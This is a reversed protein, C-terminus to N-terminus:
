KKKTEAKKQTNTAFVIEVGLKQGLRVLLEDQAEPAFTRVVNEIVSVAQNVLSDFEGFSKAAKVREAWDDRTLERVAQAVRLADRVMRQTEVPSQPWEYLIGGDEDKSRKLYGARVARAMLSYFRGGTGIGYNWWNFGRHRFKHPHDQHIGALTNNTMESMECTNIMNVKVALRPLVSLPFRGFCGSTALPGAIIFLIQSETM